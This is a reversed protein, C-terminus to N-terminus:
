EALGSRSWTDLPSRLVAGAYGGWATTLLEEARPADWGGAPPNRYVASATDGVWDWVASDTDDIARARLFSELADRNRDARFARTGDRFHLDYATARWAWAGLIALGVLLLSRWM